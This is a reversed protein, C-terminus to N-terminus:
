GQGHARSPPVSRGRAARPLSGGWHHPDWPPPEAARELVRDWRSASCLTGRLYCLRPQIPSHMPACIDRCGRTPEGGRGTRPCCPEAKGQWRAGGVAARPKVQEGQVGLALPQRSTPFWHRCGCFAGDLWSWPLRRGSRGRSWVARCGGLVGLGRRGPQLGPQTNPHHAPAAWPGGFRMRHSCGDVNSDVSAVVPARLPWHGQRGGGHGRRDRLLTILRPARPSRSYLRPSPSPSLPLSLFLGNVARRDDGPKIEGMESGSWECVPAREGKGEWSPERASAMLSVFLKKQQKAEGAGLRPRIRCGQGRSRRLGAQPVADFGQM